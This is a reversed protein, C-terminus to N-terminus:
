YLNQCLPPFANLRNFLQNFAMYKFCDVDSIIGFPGDGTKEAAVEQANGHALRGSVADPHGYHPIDVCQGNGSQTIDATDNEGFANREIFGGPGLGKLLM